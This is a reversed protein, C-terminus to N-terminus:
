LLLSSNKQQQQKKPYFLHQRPSKLFFFIKGVLGPKTILIKTKSKM